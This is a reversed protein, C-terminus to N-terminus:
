STTMRPWSNGDRPPQDPSGARRCGSRLSSYANPTGASPRWPLRPTGSPAPRETLIREVEAIYSGVVDDPMDGITPDADAQDYAHFIRYPETVVFHNDTAEEM